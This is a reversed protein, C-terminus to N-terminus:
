IEVIKFLLKDYDAGSNIIRSRGITIDLEDHTHGFIIIDSFEKLLEGHQPNGNWQPKDMAELICPMHSVSVVKKGEKPYDVMFMVAEDAKARLFNDIQQGNEYRSMYDIDRTDNHEQHYWGNFGLFLVGDKEFPNKELLHIKFREAYKNIKLFKLKLSPIKKDWLDHNGLVGLIKKDPFADRFAKFSGKVHDMKTTGWDGSVIILDFSNPDISKLVNEMINAKKSSYGRHPDTIILLKMFNGKNM